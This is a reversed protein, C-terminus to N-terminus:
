RIYMDTLITAARPCHSYPRLHVRIFASEFPLIKQLSRREDAHMQPQIWFQLVILSPPRMSVRRPNAPTAPIATVAPKESNANAWRALTAPAAGLFVTQSLALSNGSPGGAAATCAM